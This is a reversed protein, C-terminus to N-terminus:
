FLDITKKMMTKHHESSLSLISELDLGPSNETAQALLNNYWKYETELCEKEANDLQIQIGKSLEENNYEKLRNVAYAKIKLFKAYIKKKAITFQEYAEPFQKLKTIEEETIKSNQM